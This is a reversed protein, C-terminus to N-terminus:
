EFSLGFGKGTPKLNLKNHGVDNFAELPPSVQRKLQYSTKEGLSRKIVMLVEDRFRSLTNMMTHDIDQRELAYFSYGELKRMYDRKDTIELNLIDSVYQGEIKDRMESLTTYDDLHNNKVFGVLSEIEQPTERSILFNEM